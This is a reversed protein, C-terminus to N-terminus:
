KARYRPPLYEDDVTSGVYRTSLIRQVSCVYEFEIKAGETIAKRRPLFIFYPQGYIDTLTLTLHMADPKLRVLTARSVYVKPDSQPVGFDSVQKSSFSGDACATDLSSRGTVIAASVRSRVTFNHYGSPLAWGLFLAIATLVGAVSLLVTKMLRRRADAVSRFPVEERNLATARGDLECDACRSASNRRNGRGGLRGM